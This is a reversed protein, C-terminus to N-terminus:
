IKFFDKLAHYIGEHDNDYETVYTSYQKLEPSGNKMVFSVGASKIMQFDNMADGFAIIHAKDIHYFEALKYISTAKNTDLFYFEAFHPANFWFRLGLNDFHSSVYDLMAQKDSLDKVEIVCTMVDRDLNELVSGIHLKMGEPHFFYTYADNKRLYFQDTDDELMMNCFADEGFHSVFSLVEEKKIWKRIPTFNADYPNDIIAGNYGIYPDNLNLMSHYHYISRPPRGSAITVINGMDSLQQLLKKTKPAINQASTLLTGDLDFVLLFKQNKLIENM